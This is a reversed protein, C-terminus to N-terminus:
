RSTTHLTDPDRVRSAPTDPPVLASSDSGPGIPALESEDAAEDPQRDACGALLLAFVLLLRKM